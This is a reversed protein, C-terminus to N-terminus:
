EICVIFGRSGVRELICHWKGSVGRTVELLAMRKIYMELGDLVMM